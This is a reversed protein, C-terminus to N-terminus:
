CHIMVLEDSELIKRLREILPTLLKHTISLRAPRKGQLLCLPFFSATVAWGLRGQWGNSAGDYRGEGGRWGKLSTRVASYAEPM